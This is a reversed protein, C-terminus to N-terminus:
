LNNLVYASRDVTRIDTVYTIIIGECTNRIIMQCKILMCEKDQSPLSLSILTLVLSPLSAKRLGFSFSNAKLCLEDQKQKQVRHLADPQVRWLGPNKNANEKCFVCPRHSGECDWLDPEGYGAKKLLCLRFQTRGSTGDVSTVEILYMSGSTIVM